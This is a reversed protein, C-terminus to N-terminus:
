YYYMIIVLLKRTMKFCQSLNLPVQILYDEHQGRIASVPNHCNLTQGDSNKQM